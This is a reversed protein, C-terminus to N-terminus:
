AGVEPPPTGDLATRPPAAKPKAAPAAVAVKLKAQDGPTLGLRQSFALLSQTATAMAKLLLCYGKAGPKKKEVAERLRDAEAMWWCLEVLLPGHHPRLITALASVVWDWKAAVAPSLGDPRRPPDASTPASLPGHRDARYTGNELHEQASKRPRGM